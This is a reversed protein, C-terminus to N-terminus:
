VSKGSTLPLTQLAGRQRLKNLVRREYGRVNAIAYRRAAAGRNAHFVLACRSIAHFGALFTDKTWRGVKMASACPARIESSSMGHGGARVHGPVSGGIGDLVDRPAAEIASRLSPLEGHGDGAIKRLGWLVAPGSVTRWCESEVSRGSNESPGSRRGM